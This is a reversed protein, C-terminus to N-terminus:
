ALTLTKSPKKTSKLQYCLTDLEVVKDTSGLVKSVCAAHKLEFCTNEELDDNPDLSLKRKTNHQEAANRKGMVQYIIQDDQENVPENDYYEDNESEVDTNDEYGRECEKDSLMYRLNENEIIEGQDDGTNERRTDSTGDTGEGRTVQASKEQTREEPLKRANKEQTREPM